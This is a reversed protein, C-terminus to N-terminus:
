VEKTIHFDINDVLLESYRCYSDVGEQPHYIHCTLRDKGFVLTFSLKLPLLIDLKEIKFGQITENDFHFRAYENMLSWLKQRTEVNIGLPKGKAAEIEAKSVLLGILGRTFCEAKYEANM